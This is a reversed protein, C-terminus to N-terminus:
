WTGAGGPTADDKCAGQGGTTCSRSTAGTTADKTITFVNTSDSTAAIVYGSASPTVTPEPDIGTNAIAANTCATYVGGEDTACSEVQSVMNRANSKAEGDQGKKQQGLFAPLAIAALIGIILIVVLLEILTFGKEDSQIRSLIRRLM